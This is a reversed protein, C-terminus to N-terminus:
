RGTVPGTFGDVVVPDFPIIAWAHGCRVPGVALAILTVALSFNALAGALLHRGTAVHIDPAPGLIAISASALGFSAVALFWSGM